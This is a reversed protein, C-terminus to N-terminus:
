YELCGYAEHCLTCVQEGCEVCFEHETWNDDLECFYM